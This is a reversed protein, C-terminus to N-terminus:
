RGLVAPKGLGVRGDARQVLYAHIEQMATIELGLTCWAPMGKDMRGACVTQIFLELTPITGTPKVSEVLAPAFSTGVGFDGHCRACNLAFQKWGEYITATVTDRPAAHYASFYATDAVDTAGGSGTQATVPAPAGSLGLLFVMTSAAIFPRRSTSPRM